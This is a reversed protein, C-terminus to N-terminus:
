SQWARVELDAPMREHELTPVIGAKVGVIGAIFEALGRSM